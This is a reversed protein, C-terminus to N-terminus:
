GREFDWSFGMEGFGTMKRVKLGGVAGLLPTVSCGDGAASAVEIVGVLASQIAMEWTPGSCQRLTAAAIM